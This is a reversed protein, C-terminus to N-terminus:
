QVLVAVANVDAMLVQPSAGHLIQVVVGSLSPGRKITPVILSLLLPMELTLVMIPRGTLAVAHIYKGVYISGDIGTTISRGSDTDSGGIFKTWSTTPTTNISM